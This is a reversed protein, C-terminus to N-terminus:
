GYDGGYKKLLENVGGDKVKHIAERMAESGIGRTSRHCAEAFASLHRKSRPHHDNRLSIMELPSSV